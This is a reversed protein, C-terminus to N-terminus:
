LISALEAEMLAEIEAEIEAEEMSIEYDIMLSDLQEMDEASLLDDEYSEDEEILAEGQSRALLSAEGYQRFTADVGVSFVNRISNQMNQQINNIFPLLQPLNRNRYKAKGLSYRWDNFNGMLNLGFKFPLPSDIVSIHYDFNTDFNQMGNLAVTYRDVGLLFPFVELQNSNIMGYVSMDAIHGSSTDKFMLLQAIKKLDGTEELLLDTGDIKIIGNITPLLITMNTDLQAMAAMECNLKGRFTKLMPIISDVQPILEIVKEATVDKLALDFGAKIDQKTRTSYFADLLVDGVDSLVMTNTLQLCRERMQMDTGLSNIHFDEYRVEGADLHVKARLNAPIVLLGSELEPATANVLTDTIVSAQYERNDAIALIEEDPVYKSGAEVASLFENANFTDSSLKLDLDLLGRDMLADQLGTLTGAAALTSTGSTVSFSDIQVMDSDFRGDIKNFTTRLPLYPTVLYAKDMMIRGVPNWASFYRLMTSDLRIDIDKKLFDAESLFDPIVITSDLQISMRDRRRERAKARQTAQLAVAANKLTVRTAGSRIFTLNEKTSVSIQPRSANKQKQLNLTTASGQLVASFSDAADMSIEAAALSFRMPHMVGDIAEPSNQGELTITGADLNLGEGLSAGVNGVSAVIGTRAGEGFLEMPELRVRAKGLALAITDAPMRISISDSVLEGTLASSSFNYLSLQSPRILGKLALDMDGEAELGASEPLYQVLDALKTSASADVDLLPDEVLLDECSAKLKMAIGKMDLALQKLDAAIVGQPSVSADLLFDLSANDIVEGYSIHSDPVAFSAEIQPLRGESAVYSGKATASLTVHADTDVYELVPVFREGYKDILESVAYDDIKASGDVYISDLALVADFAAHLPMSALEADINKLSIYTRDGDPLLGADADLELPLPFTGYQPLKVQADASAVLKFHDDKEQLSLSKAAFDLAYSGYRGEVSIDELELDMRGSERPGNWVKYLLSDEIVGKFRLSGIGLAAFLSDSRDTLVVSPAGDVLVKGIDIFPLGASATTDSPLRLVSWNYQTSDYYHAHLRLGSLEVRPIIFRGKLAQLVNISAYMRSAQGLTDCEEGLGSAELPDIMDRSLSYRDSPYTVCVDDIALQFRPFDRFLSASVKGVELRGDVYPAAYKDVLKGLTRSSLLVQTAISLLVVLAALGIALGALIRIFLKKGSAGM